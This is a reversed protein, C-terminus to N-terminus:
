RRRGLLNNLIVIGALAGVGVIAWMTWNVPEPEGPRRPPETARRSVIITCPASVESGTAATATYTDALPLSLDVYAHGLFPSIPVEEEYVVVGGSDKVTFTVSWYRWGIDTADLRFTEGPAVTSGCPVAIRDAGRRLVIGLPSAVEFGVQDELYETEM